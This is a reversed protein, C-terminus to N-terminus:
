ASKLLCAMVVTRGVTGQGPRSSMGEQSARVIPGEKTEKRCQWERHWFRSCPQRQVPNTQQDWLATKRKMNALNQGSM